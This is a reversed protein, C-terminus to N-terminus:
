RRFSIITGKLNLRVIRPYVKGLIIAYGFEDGSKMDLMETVGPEWKRFTAPRKPGQTIFILDEFYESV